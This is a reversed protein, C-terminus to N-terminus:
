HQKYFYIIRIHSIYFRYFSNLAFHSPRSHDWGGKKLGNADSDQHRFGAPIYV